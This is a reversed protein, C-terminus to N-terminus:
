DENLALLPIKIHFAMKKTLSQKFLSEFFGRKYHLMALVDTNNQETFNLISHEIDNSEINHFPVDPEPFLLRCNATVVDKVDSKHTKIYICDVHAGFGQAFSVVKRLAKQDKERFRTTFTIRKIPSYISEEPIGLVITKSDSMVSATSSGLFTEKLGTAGKTGMVVYDINEEKVLQLITSVLDGDMLVNSIKIHDLEHHAAIERLIPIQGKYNQFTSMEVTEYIDALYAPVNIYDVMPLEYVHLTIVEANLNKALQLAYVFANNSTESFDTPFLIKKM